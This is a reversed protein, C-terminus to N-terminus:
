ALQVGKPLDMFSISLLLNGDLLLINLRPFAKFYGSPVHEILNRGLDLYELSNTKAIKEPIPVLDEILNDRLFLTKLGTPFLSFNLQFWLSFM